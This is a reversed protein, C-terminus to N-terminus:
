LFAIGVRLVESHLLVVIKWVADSSLVWEMGALQLVCSAIIGDENM